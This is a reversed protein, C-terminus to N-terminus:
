RQVAYPAAINESAKKDKEFVPDKTFCAQLYLFLDARNGAKNLSYYIHRGEKKRVILGADKLIRVHRSIRPESMNLAKQLELVSFDRFSLLNVIRLRTKDSLSKTVSLLNHM